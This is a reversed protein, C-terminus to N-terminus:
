AERLSGDSVEESDNTVGLGIGLLGWAFYYAEGPLHLALAIVLIVILSLLRKDVRSRKLAFFQLALLPILGFTGLKTMTNLPESDVGNKTSEYRAVAPPIRDVFEPATNFGFGFVPKESYMQLAIEVTSRRVILSPDEEGAFARAYVSNFALDVSQKVPASFFYLGFSLVLVASLSFFLKLTKKLEGGFVSIIVLAIPIDTVMSFSATFVIAMLTFILKLYKGWSDPSSFLLFLYPLLLAALISPEPAFAFARTSTPMFPSQSWLAFSKNNSFLALFPWGLPLAIRQYIAYGVSILCGIEYGKLMLRTKGPYEILAPVGWIVICTMMTVFTNFGIQFDTSLYYGIAYSAAMMIAIHLAVTDKAIIKNTCSAVVFILVAAVLSLQVGTNGFNYLATAPFCLGAGFIIYLWKM